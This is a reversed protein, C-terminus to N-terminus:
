SVNIIKDFIVKQWHCSDLFSEWTCVPVLCCRSGCCCEFSRGAVCCCVRLSKNLLSRGCPMFSRQSCTSEDWIRCRSSANRWQPNREEEGSAVSTSRLPCLRIVLYIVASKEMQAVIFGFSKILITGDECALSYLIASTQTQVMHPPQLNSTLQKDEPCFWTERQQRDAWGMLPTFVPSETHRENGREDAVQRPKM